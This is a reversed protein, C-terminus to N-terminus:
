GPTFCLLAGFWLGLGQTLALVFGGAAAAYSAARLGGAASALLWAASAFVVIGSGFSISYATRSSWALDAWSRLASVGSVIVFASLLLLWIAASRKKSM